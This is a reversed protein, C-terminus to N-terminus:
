FRRARARQPGNQLLCEKAVPPEPPFAIQRWRRQFGPRKDQIKKFRVTLRSNGTIRAGQILTGPCTLAAVLFTNEASFYRAM